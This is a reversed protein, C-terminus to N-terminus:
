NTTRRRVQMTGSIADSLEDFRWDVSTDYRVDLKVIHEDVSVVATHFIQRPAEPDSPALAVERRTVYVVHGDQTTYQYLPNGEALQAAYAALSIMSDSLDTIRAQATVLKGLNYGKGTTDDTTWTEPVRYTLDFDRDVHITVLSWTTIAKPPFAHRPTWPQVTDLLAPVPPTAPQNPEVPLRTPPGELRARLRDQDHCGSFVLPAAVLLM